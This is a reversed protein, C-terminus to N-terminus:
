SVHSVLDFDDRPGYKYPGRATHKVNGTPYNARNQLYPSNAALQRLQSQQRVALLNPTAMGDLFM